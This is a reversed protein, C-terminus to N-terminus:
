TAHRALALREAGQVLDAYEKHRRLYVSVFPCTPIVKLGNARAYDLAAKALAGGYGQGELAGPVRTHMLDLTDGRREYTLVAAGTDTRIEFKGAMADHVVTPSEAM